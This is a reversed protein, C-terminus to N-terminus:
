GLLLCPLCDGHRHRHIVPPPQPRGQPLRHLQTVLSPQSGMTGQHLATGVDTEDSVVDGM